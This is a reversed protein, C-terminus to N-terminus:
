SALGTEPVDEEVLVDEDLVDGMPVCLRLCIRRLNDRDPRHTGKEWQHLAQRSVIGEALERLSLNRARRANALVETKIKVGNRGPTGYPM